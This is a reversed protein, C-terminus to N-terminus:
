PPIHCGLRETAATVGSATPLADSLGQKIESGDPIKDGIADGVRTGIATGGIGGVIGGGVAGVTGGAATGAGPIVSGALAGGAAGAKAGALAGGVLGATGGTAAATDEVAGQDRQDPRRGTLLTSFAGLENGSRFQDNFSQTDDRLGMVADRVFVEDLRDGIPRWVNNQATQLISASTQLQASADTMASLMGAGIGGALAVPLAAAAAVGAVPKPIKSAMASAGEIAAGAGAGGGGGGGGPASLGDTLGDMDGDFSVPIGEGVQQLEENVKDTENGLQREDLEPAFVISETPM